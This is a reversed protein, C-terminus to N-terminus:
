GPKAEPVIEGDDFIPRGAKEALIELQKKHFGSWSWSINGGPEVLFMAPVQTIGFANSAPYNMGAPDILTEMSQIGFEENFAHATRVDDQSVACVQFGEGHLRDLYPLTLQCTPCSAKYFALLVQGRALMSALTATVGDLGQFSVEPVIQGTELTKQFGRGM